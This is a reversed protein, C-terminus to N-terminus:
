LGMHEKLLATCQRRRRGVSLELVNQGENAVDQGEEPPTVVAKPDAGLKLLLKLCDQSDYIVSFHLATMGQYNVMTLFRKTKDADLGAFLAEVLATEGNEILRFLRKEEDSTAQSMEPVLDL